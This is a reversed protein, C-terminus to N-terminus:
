TLRLDTGRARRGSWMSFPGNRLKGGKGQVGGGGGGGGGLGEGKGRGWGVGVLVVVVVVAEESEAPLLSFSFHSTEGMGQVHQSHARLM